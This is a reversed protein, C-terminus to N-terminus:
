HRLARDYTWNMPRLLFISTQITWNQLKTISGVPLPSVVQNRAAGHLNTNVDNERKLIKSQATIARDAPIVHWSSSINRANSRKKDELKQWIINYLTNGANTSASIGIEHSQTWQKKQLQKLQNRNRARTIIGAALSYVMVSILQIVLLKTKTQLQNTSMTLIHQVNAFYEFLGTAHSVLILDFMATATSNILSDPPM